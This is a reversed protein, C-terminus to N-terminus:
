LYSNPSATMLRVVSETVETQPGWIQCPRKLILVKYSHSDLGNHSLDVDSLM